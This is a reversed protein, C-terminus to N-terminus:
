RSASVSSRFFSFSVRGARRRVPLIRQIQQTSPAATSNHHNKPPSPAQFHLICFAFHLIVRFTRMIPDQMLIGSFYNGEFPDKLFGNEM